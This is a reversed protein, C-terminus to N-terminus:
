PHVVWQHLKRELDDRVIFIRRINPPQVAALDGRRILDRLLAEPLGYEQSAHPVGLLKSGTRVRPPKM